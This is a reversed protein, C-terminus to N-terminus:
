EMFEEWFLHCNQPTSPGYVGTLIWVFGSSKDVIKIFISFNGILEDNKQVM